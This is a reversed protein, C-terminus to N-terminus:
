KLQRAIYEAHKTNGIKRAEDYARMMIELYERDEKLQRRYLLYQMGIFGTLIGLFLSM